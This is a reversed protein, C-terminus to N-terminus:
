CNDFMIKSRLQVHLLDIDTSRLAVAFDQCQSAVLMTALADDMAVAVILMM